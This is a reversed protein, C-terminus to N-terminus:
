NKTLIMDLFLFALPSMILVLYFLTRRRAFNITYGVGGPKEVMFAADKPNYYYLGGATWGEMEDATQFTIQGTLSKIERNVLIMRYIFFAMGATLLVVSTWLLTNLASSLPLQPLVSLVLLSVATLLVGGFLRCCDIMGVNAWLSIEKLSLVKEAEEAPVRFRAQIIDQKLFLWFVQLWLGLVPPFFVTLLSKKEWADAEGSANWHVPIVEPLQGYYFGLALFPTITLFIVAIEVWPSSFEKFNRPKLSTALRSTIRKDRLLWSRRLYKFLLVLFLFTAFINALAMSEPAATKLLAFAMVALFSVFLLDRRYKRLIPLGASQFDSEKLVLGFLTDKGNFVPLFYFLLVELLFITGLLVFDNM